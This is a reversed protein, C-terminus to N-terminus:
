GVFNSSSAMLNSDGVGQNKKELEVFDTKATAFVSFKNKITNSYLEQNFRFDEEIIKTYMNFIEQSTIPTPNHYKPQNAHSKLSKRSVVGKERGQSMLKEGYPGKKETGIAGGM